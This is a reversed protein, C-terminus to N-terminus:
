SRRAWWFVDCLVGCAALYLPRHEPPTVQEEAPIPARDGDASAYEGAIGIRSPPESVMTRDYGLAACALLVAARRAAANEM